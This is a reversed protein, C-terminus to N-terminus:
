FQKYTMALSTALIERLVFFFSHTGLKAGPSFKLTRLFSKSEHINGWHKRKGIAHGVADLRV